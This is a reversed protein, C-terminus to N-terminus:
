GRTRIEKGTEKLFSVDLTCSIQEPVRVRLDIHEDYEQLEVSIRGRVSHYSCSFSHMGQPLFPRIVIKAFGLELPQIGAIGNYSREIIHGMM